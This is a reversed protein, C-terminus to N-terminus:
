KSYSITKILDIKELDYRSKFKDHNLKFANIKLFKDIIETSKALNSEQLDTLELKNDDVINAIRYNESIEKLVEYQEKFLSRLYIIKEKQNNRKKIEDNLLNKNEYTIKDYEINKECELVRRNIVILAEDIKKIEERFFSINFELRNSPDNLSSRKHIKKVVEIIYRLFIRLVYFLILGLVFFWDFVSSSQDGTIDKYIFGVGAACFLAGFSSAIIDLCGSNRSISAIVLCIVLVVIFSISILSM